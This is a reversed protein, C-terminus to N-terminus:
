TKTATKTCTKRFITLSRSSASRDNVRTRYLFGKLNRSPATARTGGFITRSNPSTNSTTVTSTGIAANTSTSSTSNAANFTPRTNFTFTLSSSFTTNTNIATATSFTSSNSGANALRSLIRLTAEHNAPGLDIRLRDRVYVAAKDGAHMRSNWAGVREEGSEVGRMPLEDPALRVDGWVAEFELEAFVLCSPSGQKKSGRKM